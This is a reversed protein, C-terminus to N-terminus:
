QLKISVDKSAKLAPRLTAVLTIGFVLVGIAVFDQWKLEVPYADVISSEMGMSLWGFNAQSWTILAGLALGIIVGGVGIFLGNSIFISAIGRSDAGMAHLIAVDRLKELALMSISVYINFSAILVIFSLAIFVFLKEIRLIKYLSAHQEESTLVKFDPGIAAMVEKKLAPLSTGAKMYIELSSRKGETKLLEEVLQIPVFVFNEDVNKEIQFVGSAMLAKKAFASQPNLNVKKGSKPYWIECLDLHDNLALNLAMQIGIGVVAFQEGENELVFKGAMIGEKMKSMTEYGQSVGKLRIVLQGNKYRILANDEVVEVVQKVNSLTKLKFLLQEDATFWKGASAEIKLDPDFTGYLSRVLGELGNFASLVIVMAMAGIAM